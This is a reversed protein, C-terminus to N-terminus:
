LERDVEDLQGGDGGMTETYSIVRAKVYWQDFMCRRELQGVSTEGARVAVNTVRVTNDNV